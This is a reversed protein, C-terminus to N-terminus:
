ALRKPKEYRDWFWTVANCVRLSSFYDVRQMNELTIQLLRTCSGTNPLTILSSSICILNGFGSFYCYSSINSKALLM